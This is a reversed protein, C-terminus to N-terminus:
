PKGAAKESVAIAPTTKAPAPKAATAPTPTKTAGPTAAVPKLPASAIPPKVVAPTAAAPAPTPADEEEEAWEDQAITAKPVTPHEGAARAKIYEKLRAVALLRTEEDIEGELLKKAEATRGLVGYALALNHRTVVSAQPKRAETKLTDVAKQANGSLLYSLALNTRVGSLDSKANERMLRTYIAQAKEHNGLMDEAVANGVILDVNNPQIRLGNTFRERAEENRNEALLRKGLLYNALPHNPQLTLARTLIASEKEPLAQKDYLRALGLHAEIHGASLRVATLYDREAAAYNGQQMAGQAGYILSQERSTLPALSAVDVPGDTSAADLAPLACAGLTLSMLLVPILRM